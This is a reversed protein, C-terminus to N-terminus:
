LSLQLAFWSAGAVAVLAAAAVLVTRLRKNFQADEDRGKRKWQRWREGESAEEARTTPVLSLGTVDVDM